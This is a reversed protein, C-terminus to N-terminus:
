RQGRDQPSPEARTAAAAEDDGAELDPPVPPGFNEAFDPSEIWAANWMVSLGLLDLARPPLEGDIRSRLLLTIVQGEFPSLDLSFEEGADAGWSSEMSLPRGTRMLATPQGEDPFLWVEAHFDAEAIAPVPQRMEVSFRLRARAPVQIQCITIAQNRTGWAAIYSHYLTQFLFQEQVFQSPRGGPRIDCYRVLPAKPIDPLPESRRILIQNRKGGISLVPRFNRYLYDTLEPAYRPMGVPDAFFNNYDALILRVGAREIEDVVGRGRDEGIHVSYYNYYRTPMRREALFTIMSLGPMAMVPENKTTLNSLLEVEYDIMQATLPEVLVGARPAAIETSMAKRLNNGWVAAFATYACVLLVCSLAAAMRTASVRWRGAGFSLAATAVALTLVPQYVNILHNFDARPFVGLFCSASFVSLALLARQPRSSGRLQVLGRLAVIPFLFPPLWYLAVHLLEVLTIVFHHWKYAIAMSGMPVAMYIFGTATWLRNRRWVESFPLYPIAHADAFGHFPRVVLSQFAADLAGQWALLAVIPLVVLIAGAAAATTGRAFALLVRRLPTGSEACAYLDLLVAGGCGALAFVGYNQKFVLSLGCLGGCAVLWLTDRKRMWSLVCAFAAMAALMSYPSYFSFTWAPFAWVSFVGILIAAFDGWLAGGIQAVIRRSLWMTALLCLGAAVRTALVSPGTVSFIGALLYWVGPTVFLDLDRYPVKGNVIELAQSLLYGEDALTLSRRCLNAVVAAAM